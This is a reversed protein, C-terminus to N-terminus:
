DRSCPTMPSFYKSKFGILNPTWSFLIKNQDINAISGIAPKQGNKPYQGEFVGDQSWPIFYSSTEWAFGLTDHVILFLIKHQDINAISDIASKQGNKPYQVEFFPDRSWSTFLFQSRM